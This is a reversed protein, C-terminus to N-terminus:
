QLTCHQECCLESGHFRWFIGQGVGAGVKGGIGGGKGWAFSTCGILHSVHVWFSFTDGNGVPRAGHRQRGTGQQLFVFAFSVCAHLACVHVMHSMFPGEGLSQLSLFTMPGQPPWPM